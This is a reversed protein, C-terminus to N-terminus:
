PNVIGHHPAPVQSPRQLWQRNEIRGSPKREKKKKKTTAAGDLSHESHVYRGLEMSQKRDLGVKNGGETLSKPM